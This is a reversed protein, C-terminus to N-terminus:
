RMINNYVVCIQAFVSEACIRDYIKWIVSSHVWKIAKCKTMAGLQTAADSSEYLNCLSIIKYQIYSYPIFLINHLDFSLRARVCVCKRVCVYM